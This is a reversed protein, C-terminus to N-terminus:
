IPELFLFRFLFFCKGNGDGNGDGNSLAKQQQQIREQQSRLYRSPEAREGKLKDFEDELEKITVQPLSSIQQKMAAGIWRFPLESAM